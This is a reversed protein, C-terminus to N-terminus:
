DITPMAPFFSEERFSESLFAKKITTNQAECCLTPKSDYPLEGAISRLVAQLMIGRKAVCSRGRMEIYIPKLALTELLMAAICRM